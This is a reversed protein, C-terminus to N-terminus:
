HYDSRAMGRVLVAADHSIAQMVAQVEASTPPYGIGMMHNILGVNLDISAMLLLGDSPTFSLLAGRNIGPPVGFWFLYEDGDYADDEPMSSRLAVDIGDLKFVMCLQGDLPDSRPIDLCGFGEFFAEFRGHNDAVYQDCMVSVISPEDNPTAAQRTNSRPM